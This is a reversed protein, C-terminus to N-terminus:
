LIPCYWKGLHTWFWSGLSHRFRHTGTHSFLTKFFSTVPLQCIIALVLHWAFLVSITTQAFGETTSKIVFNKLYLPLTSHIQSIYITFFINVAIYVLFRRHRAFATADVGLVAM